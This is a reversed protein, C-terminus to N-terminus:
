SPLRATRRKRESTSPESRLLRDLDYAAARGPHGSFYEELVPLVQHHWVVRLRTEDLDPVMFYSHGIQYHAGMDDRLQANLRQLLRVVVKIFDPGAAPQHEQLWGALVDTSPVMDLFSFRRRLAQDVLAVSRDAANMTGIVQLNAPLRFERKSYPLTVTQGRYELLYLLEGFIRPLNGRNIEDILLVFPQEPQAAAQAAFACLLGDEVPYTVDQRGNVEVSRVKIGEVFEEYSYAPHFQILRVAEDRGHALLRALCRAVHTKGTGPVGQLIIQGKLQLLERARQLWDLTLYTTQCFDKDAFASNKPTQGAAQALIDLPQLEAACAYVSLLRDFTLMIQGVLEDSRLLPAEAAVSKAIMWSKGRAWTRLDEPSAPATGPTRGEADAFVIDALGGSKQLARYLHEAHEEVNARFRKGIECAPQGLRLGYTIGTEDLRVFFQMDDRRHSAPEPDAPVGPYHRRYFTLWLATHYPVSRGYDNKCISTLARGNVPTTELDWEYKCHLVPEVYREALARCLEFLPQRVAFHYRDRHREMWERCNNQRLEALFHFTDACFGRFATPSMAHSCPIAANVTEPEAAGTALAALIFPAELSHFQYQEGVAALAENFLQYCEATTEGPASDPDLLALGQRSLDNWPQFRQPDRLHLVAASLWLGAGPIPDARCFDDMVTSPEEAEWLRSIWFATKESHAEWEMAARKAGIPDALALMRGMSPGDNARLATPLTARAEELARGRDKLRVRLPVVSRVRQIANRLVVATSRLVSSNRGNPFLTRDGMTGVLALFHDVHLPSLAPELARIQKYSDQIATYISRPPDSSRWEALGLRQLGAVTFATWAPHQQPDMSQLLASWFAPGLGAVFYAAGPTLCRDIKRPAPDPCRLIHGLAHRVVEAKRKLTGAHLAPQVCAMYFRCLSDCFQQPSAGELFAEHVFDQRAGLIARFRPGLDPLDALEESNPIGAAVYSRLLPVLPLRGRRPVKM